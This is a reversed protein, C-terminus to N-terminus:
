YQEAVAVSEQWVRPVSEASAHDLWRGSASRIALFILRRVGRLGMLDTDM